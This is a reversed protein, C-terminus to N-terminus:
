VSKIDPRNKQLERKLKLAEVELEATRVKADTENMKIKMQTHRKHIDTVLCYAAISITIERPIKDVVELIRPLYWYDFM